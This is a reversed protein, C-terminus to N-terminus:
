ADGCDVHGILLLSAKLNDVSESDRCTSSHLQVLRAEMAHRGSGISDVTTLPTNDAM